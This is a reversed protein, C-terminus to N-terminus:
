LELLANLARKQGGCAHPIWMTGLWVHLPFCCSFVVFVLLGSMCMFIFWSLASPRARSSTTKLGCELPAVWRQGSPWADTQRRVKRIATHWSPGM